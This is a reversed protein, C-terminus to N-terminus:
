AKWGEEKKWRYGSLALLVVTPTYFVWVINFSIFSVTGIQINYISGIIETIFWSTIALAIMLANMKPYLRNRVAEWAVWLSVVIIIVYALGPYFLGVNALGDALLLFTVAGVAVFFLPLALASTVPRGSKSPRVWGFGRGHRIILLAHAIISLVAGIIFATLITAQSAKSNVAVIGMLIDTPVICLFALKLLLADKRDVFNMGIMWAIVACLLSVFGKAYSTYLNSLGYLYNMWDVAFFTGAVLLILGLLVFVLVKKSRSVPLSNLNSVIYEEM